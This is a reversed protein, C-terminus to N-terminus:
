NFSLCKESSSFSRTSDQGNEKVGSTLHEHIIQWETDVKRWIHTAHQAPYLADGNKLVRGWWTLASWALNNSTEIRDLEIHHMIFDPFNSNIEREWIERYRQFGIFKSDQEAYNDYILLEDEEQAFLHEYGDLSYKQEGPSFLKQWQAICDRLQAIDSNKTDIHPAVKLTLM